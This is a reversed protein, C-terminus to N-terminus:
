GVAATRKRVSDILSARLLYARHAAPDAATKRLADNSQARLAPDKEELRKKNAITQQQVYEVNLPRRFRDYQELITAPAEQRLVRGLLTSLEVADHIGFNLGLGGLPNNVHASDGALFVRGQGFSAAVRQHVNYLNRHVVPYSGPKPFFTQLRGQVAEEDLAQADTEEIRTPFLVRWLGAGDDGTVKFLACWEDPDSFYNRSCQAYEVDFSFPTTLVLFREPHTYGEFAIDLAKRVTSRGGDAGILYSGRIRRAGSTGEVVAEVRDSFQELATVRTSFNIAVHAFSRLRELTMNALKHQECQVVYPFRTDNALQGFDFEVIVERSARDWIRFKPEVLGRRIVEDVLGLEALMELTAAHTTAARPSDNVRGEAEFLHVPIGQRALALATICGVPGGGAILIPQQTTM